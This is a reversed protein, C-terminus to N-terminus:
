VSVAGKIHPHPDYDEIIFDEFAFDFISDVNRAFRLKPLPRVDRTLQLNVQEVHNQYIHVDGFTHVFEGPELGTVHAIMMTLLAYSAINFPVGLFVDASRQYLQCSLKGDAVYFQFLCHCPPLAMRDIEGVNWASVILRRSNPNTKIDHILRSIQDITEGDAGRWSRWQSGYVPGLEGNEDAWENWIRVGNEQLYRVNTDGKLFWLLEHAISKFHLKKTTLMPFGEQLNFRMQYGFTSITGTGTRDGKKEGNELVHRCLDKYQKM